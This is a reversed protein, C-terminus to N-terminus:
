GHAAVPPRGAARGNELGALRDSRIVGQEDLWPRYFALLHDGASVGLLAHEVLTAEGPSLDPLVLPGNEVVLDLGEGKLMGLDWLLQRRPIGWHDFAGAMILREAALRGPRVLRYFSALDAFPRGALIRGVQEEGLGKVYNFGLRIAGEEVTCVAESREVDVPLVVVGRRRAEGVLVAPTWFGMPQNNLLAVLYQEFHCRKLWASQYVIVVFAVAHSRAFAYSGFARLQEFVAEAVESYLPRWIFL